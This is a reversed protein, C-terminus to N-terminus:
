SKRGEICHAALRAIAALTSAIGTGTGFLLPAFADLVVTGLVPTM